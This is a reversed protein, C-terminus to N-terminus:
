ASIEQAPPPGLYYLLNFDDGAAVFANLSNGAATCWIYAGNDSVNYSSAENQQQGELYRDQYYNAVYTFQGRIYQPAVYSAVGDIDFKVYAAGQQVGHQIGTTPADYEYQPHGFGRVVYLHGTGGNTIDWKTSGSIGMFMPMLYSFLNTDYPSPTYSAFTGPGPWSTIALASKPYTPVFAVKNVNSSWALARAKRKLLERFSLVQEGMSRIAADSAGSAPGLMFVNSGGYEEAGAQPYHDFAPPDPGEATAERTALVAQALTLLSEWEKDEEVAQPFEPDLLADITKGPFVTPADGPTYSSGPEPSVGYGIRNIAGLTPCSVAFDPGGCAFVHIPVSVVDTPGTLPELVYVSIFGNAWHSNAFLYRNGVKSWYNEKNYAIIVEIEPTTDLDWIVSYGTNFSSDAAIIGPSWKVLLKGKHFPTRIASLKYKISGRWYAFPLTVTALCSNNTLIPSVYSQWITASSETWTLATVYSYRSAMKGVIMEDEQIGIAFDTAVTKEALPDATLPYSNEAGETVAWGAQTRMRVPMHDRTDVERTFGFASAIDGIAHFATSVSKVGVMAAAGKLSNTAAMLARSMGSTGQGSQPQAAILLEVDTMWALVSITTASPTGTNANEFGIIANSYLSGGMDGVSEIPTYPDSEHYPISWEIDNGIGPDVYSVYPLSTMSTLSSIRNFVQDDLAGGPNYAVYVRGQVFQSASMVFRLNLTGRIFAFARIKENVLTNTLFMNWPNGITTSGLTTPLVAIKVPRALFEGLSDHKQVLSTGSMTGHGTHHVDLPTPMMVTAPMEVANSVARPAGSDSVGDALPVGATTAYDPMSGIGTNQNMDFMKLVSSSLEVLGSQTTPDVGTAIENYQGTRHKEYLADYDVGHAGVPFVDDVVNGYDKHGRLSELWQRILASKEDYVERGHMYLQVHANLASEVMAQRRSLSSSKKYFAFSKMISKMELPAVALGDRIGFGRKLFEAERLPVLRLESEKDPMSYSMGFNAALARRLELTYWTSTNGKLYDDGFDLLKIDKKFKYAMFTLEWSPLDDKMRAGTYYYIREFVSTCMSNDETTSSKGSPQNSGQLVVEGRYSRYFFFEEKAACRAFHFMKQFLADKRSLDIRKKWRKLIQWKCFPALRNCIDFNEADQGEVMSDLGGFYEIVEKWADSNCCNIGVAHETKGRFKKVYEYFGGFLMRTLITETFPGASFIRAPKGVKRPEDKPKMTYMVGAFEAKEWCRLIRDIAEKMTDDLEYSGPEGVLHDRKKKGIWPGAASAFNVSKVAGPEGNIAQSLSLFGVDDWDFGEVAELDDFYDDFCRDVLEPDLDGPPSSNLAAARLMPDVYEDGNEIHAQLKPIDLNMGTAAVVGDYLPTREYVSAQDTTRLSKFNGEYSGFGQVHTFITKGHPHDVGERIDGNIKGSYRLGSGPSPGDDMQKMAAEVESAYIAECWGFSTTETGLSHLAVVYPAGLVTTTILTGCAGDGYPQVATYNYGESEVGMGNPRRCWELHTEGRIDELSSVDFRYVDARVEMDRGGKEPFCTVPFYSSTGVSVLCYDKMGIRYVDRGIDLMLQRSNSLGGIPRDTVMTMRVGTMNKFTHYTTLVRGPGVGLAYVRVASTPSTAVHLIVLNREAKAIVSLVKNMPMKAKLSNPAAPDLVYPTHVGKPWKHVNLPPVSGVASFAELAQTSISRVFFQRVRYMMLGVVGLVVTARVVATLCSIAQKRLEVRWAALEARGKALAESAEKALESVTKFMVTAEASLTTVASTASEVTALLRNRVPRMFLTTIGVAAFAASAIMFTDPGGQPVIADSGEDPCVCLSDVNGCVTCLEEMLIGGKQEVVERQIALYSTLEGKLYAVCQAFTRVEEDRITVAEAAADGRITCVLRKSFVNMVVIEGQTCDYVEVSFNYRANLEELTLVRKSDHEGVKSKNKPAIVLTRWIRRFAAQPCTNIKLIQMTRTNTNILVAQHNMMETGKRTIEAQDLMTPVTNVFNMPNSVIPNKNYDLNYQAADDIVLIRTQGNVNDLRTAAPNVSAVMSNDFKCGPYLADWVMRLILMQYTSKQCGPVSLLVICVPQVKNEIGTRLARIRSALACLSKEMSVVQNFLTGNSNAYAAAHLRGQTRLSAVYQEFELTLAQTTESLYGREQLWTYDSCNVIAEQCSVLWAFAQNRAMVESLSVKGTLVPLGYEWVAAFLATISSLISVAGIGNPFVSDYFETARKVGGLGGLMLHLPGLLLWHAVRMAASWLPTKAMLEATDPGVLASTLMQVAATFVEVVGEAQPSLGVRVLAADFYAQVSCLPVSVGKSQLFLLTAAAMNVPDKRSRALLVVYPGWTMMESYMSEIVAPM